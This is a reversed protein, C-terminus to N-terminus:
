NSARIEFGSPGNYDTDNVSVDKVDALTPGVTAAKVLADVNENSGSIIAEVTGDNCNRVWGEINMTKALDSFWARYSVGQVRGKIVLHKTSM